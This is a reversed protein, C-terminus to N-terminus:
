FMATIMVSFKDKCWCPGGEPCDNGPGEGYFKIRKVETEKPTPDNGTPILTFGLHTDFMTMDTM